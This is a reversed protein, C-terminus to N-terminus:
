RRAVTERACRRTQAHRLPGCLLLSVRLPHRACRSRKISIPLLKQLGTSCMEPTTIALNEAERASRPLRRRAHGSVCSDPGISVVHSVLLLQFAARCDQGASFLLGARDQILTDGPSSRMVLSDWHSVARLPQESIGSAVARRRHSPGLLQPQSM